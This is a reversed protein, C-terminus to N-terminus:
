QEIEARLWAPMRIPQFRRADIVAATVSATALLTGDERLMRQEFDIRAAGVRGPEVTIELRDDLRAPQLWDVTMRRIAFLIGHQESLAAQEVGLSRLWETRAREFFNLYRAHYVVAGADTDEYYVRVHWVFAAM